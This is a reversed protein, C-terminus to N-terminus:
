VQRRGHRVACSSPADSPIETHAGCFVGSTSAPMLIARASTPRTPSSATRSGSPRSTTIRSGGPSATWRFQTRCRPAVL